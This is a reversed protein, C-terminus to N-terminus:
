LRRRPIHQSMESLLFHDSASFIQYSQTNTPKSTSNLSHSLGRYSNHDHINVQKFLTSSTFSCLNVYYYVMNPHLGAYTLLGPVSQGKHTATVQGEDMYLTIVMSFMKSNAKM